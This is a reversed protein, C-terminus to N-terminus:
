QSLDLETIIISTDIFVSSTYVSNICSLLDLSKVFYADKFFEINFKIGTLMFVLMPIQLEEEETELTHPVM